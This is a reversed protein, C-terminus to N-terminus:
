KSLASVVNGIVITAPSSVSYEKAVSSITQVDATIVRQNPRWANEVIAIPTNEPYGLKQLDTCMTPLRSVAMLLVTTRSSRYEPLAPSDSGLKLQGTAICLENAVGRHTVPIGAAMSASLSSSIGPIVKAEFGYNRFFIVEEGGRGYMFPDGNKLRVVKRGERLAQLGLRNLENQANEANGKTKKAIHMDCKVLNLIAPPTLRDALVLDASNIAQVAYVTLLQPDGPGTGILEISARAGSDTTPSWTADAEQVQAALEFIHEHKVDMDILVSDVGKVVRTHHADLHRPTGVAWRTSSGKALVSAGWRQWLVTLASGCAVLAVYWLLTAFNTADCECLLHAASISVAPDM